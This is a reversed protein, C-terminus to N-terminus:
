VINSGVIDTYGLQNCVTRGDIEHFTQTCPSFWQGFVFVELIGESKQPSHVLRVGGEYMLASTAVAYIVHYVIINHCFM